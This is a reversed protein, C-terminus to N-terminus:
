KGRWGYRLERILAVVDDDNKIGVEEAVGEMAKQMKKIAPDMADADIEYALSRRSIIREYEDISLMVAAPKNNKMVVMKRLKILDEFVQSAKGKNFLSIPVYQKLLQMTPM